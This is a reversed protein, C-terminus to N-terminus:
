CSKKNQEKGKIEFTASVKSTAHITASKIKRQLSSSAPDVQDEWEKMEEERIIVAKGLSQGVLRCVDQAKRRANSVANLCVQRRLKEMNEPSHYFHPSSICVSSDLKEVLMNCINQLKEFDEFVVCVEADMQYANAKREIEKSITIDGEPLGRQRLTQEIYELRRVVSSKAEAAAVKSSSLSICVRARDPAASLEATGTVQVERGGKQRVVIGPKNEVDEAAMNTMAGPQLSAFLRSVPLPAAM